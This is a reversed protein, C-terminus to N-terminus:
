TVPRKTGSAGAIGGDVEIEKLLGLWDGSEGL